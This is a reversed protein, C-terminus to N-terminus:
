PSVPWAFRHRRTRTAPRGTTTQSSSSPTRPLVGSAGSLNTLLRDIDRDLAEIMAHYMALDSMDGCDIDPEYFADPPCHFPTHAANFAVYAFWPGQGIQLNVWDSAWTAIDFTQYGGVVDFNPDPDCDDAENLTTRTYDEYSGTLQYDQFFGDFHEFGAAIPADRGDCLPKNIPDGQVPNTGLHWKGFAATAYGAGELLRPLIYPSHTDIGGQGDANIVDGIGTRFGYKGTLITTRTPSCRPNSWADDFRLMAPLWDVALNPTPAYIPEVQDDQAGYFSFHEFGVDDLVIVLINPQTQAALPPVVFAVLCPLALVPALRSVRTM